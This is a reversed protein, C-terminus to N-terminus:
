INMTAAQEVANTAHPCCCNEPAMEFPYLPSLILKLNDASLFVIVSRVNEPYQRQLPLISLIVTPGSLPIGTFFPSTCATTNSGSVPPDVAHLNARSPTIFPFVALPVNRILMTLRPHSVYTSLHVALPFYFDIIFYLTKVRSKNQKVVSMEHACCVVHFPFIM